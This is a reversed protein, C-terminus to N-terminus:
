FLYKGYLRTREGMVVCGDECKKACNRKVSFTKMPTTSGHGDTSTFAFKKVQLNTYNTYMHKKHVHM